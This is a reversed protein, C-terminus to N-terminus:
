SIEIVNSLVPQININDSVGDSIKTINLKGNESETLRYRNEGIYIIIKNVKTTPDGHRNATYEM